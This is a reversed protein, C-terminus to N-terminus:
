VIHYKKLIYKHAKLEYSLKAKDIKISDINNNNLVRNIISYSIHPNKPLFSGHMYTGIIGKYNCGEKKEFSNNGFGQIVDGLVILSDNQFFTQGGHNEFGVIYNSFSTDIGFRSIFDQNLRVVINGICRSTVKNDPAKTQIDLIDLGEIFNGEADLFFKGFLQYGGCILLFIKDKEVEDSIFSRHRLLDKFVSYQDKDQGGGLFYIDAEKINNDGIETSFIEFNINHLNLIHVLAKINGIDGYINMSQSYLHNIKIKKM